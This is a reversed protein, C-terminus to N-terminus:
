DRLIEPDLGTWSDARHLPAVHWRRVVPQYGTTKATPLRRAGGAKSTLVPELGFGQPSGARSVAPQWGAGCALATGGASLRRIDSALSFDM